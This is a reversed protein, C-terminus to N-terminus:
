KFIKIAVKSDTNDRDQALYVRSTHGDGLKDIIEYRGNFFSHKSDPNIPQPELGKNLFGASSVM